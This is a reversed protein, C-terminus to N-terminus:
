AVEGRKRERQFVVLFFPLALLEAFVSFAILAPLSYDYLVGIVASGL